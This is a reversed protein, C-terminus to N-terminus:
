EGSSGARVRKRHGHAPGCRGECTHEPFMRWFSVGRYQKAAAVSGRVRGGELDKGWHRAMVKGTMLRTARSYVTGDEIFHVFNVLEIAELRACCQGCAWLHEQVAPVRSEALKDLSYEELVGDAIHDEM